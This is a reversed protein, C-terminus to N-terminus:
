YIKIKEARHIAHSELIPTLTHYARNAHLIRKKIGPNLDNNNTLLTGLYIFESVVEFEYTGLKINGSGNYPKRFLRMFKTKQENIELGFRKRQNTSAVLTEEVDQVRRGMITSMIKSKRVTVELVTNFSVPL